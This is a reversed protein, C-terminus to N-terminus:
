DDKKEEFNITLENNKFNMNFKGIFLGMDIVTDIMKKVDKPDIM